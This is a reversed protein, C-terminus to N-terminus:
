FNSRFCSGCANRTRGFKVRTVVNEIQYISLTEVKFLHERLEYDGVDGISLACKQKNFVIKEAIAKHFLYPGPGGNMFSLVIMYGLFKYHEKTLSEIHHSIIQEGPLGELLSSSQIAEFFATFFECRPGGEDIAPEGLFTVRPLHILEEPDTRELKRFTDEVIHKRRVLFKVEELAYPETVFPEM